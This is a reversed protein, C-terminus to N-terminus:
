RTIRAIFSKLHTLIRLKSILSRTAYRFENYTRLIYAPISLVEEGSEFRGHVRPGESVIYQPRISTHEDSKWTWSNRRFECGTENAVIEASYAVKEVRRQPKRELLKVNKGRFKTTKVRWRITAWNKRALSSMFRCRPTALKRARYTASQFDHM